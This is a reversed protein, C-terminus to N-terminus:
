LKLQNRKVTLANSQYIKILDNPRTKNQKAEEVITTHDLGKLKLIDDMFTTIEDELNITKEEKWSKYTVINKILEISREQNQLSRNLQIFSLKEDVSLNIYFNTNNKWSNFQIIKQQEDSPMKWKDLDVKNMQSFTHLLSPTFHSDLNNRIFNFFDKEKIESFGPIKSLAGIKELNIFFNNLHKESLVKEFEKWVRESTLSDFEGNSVMETMMDLTEKAISFDYRASFRAIRLIRVPDEAFHKSVHRLIQNTLDKQGGYPDIIKGTYDMAMSNITLDRRFLDDELSVNQTEVSFGGYGAGTKREKRALAYEFGTQPHLFVPFDKGVQEFGLNEMDQETYGVVVYDKDKPELGLLIDRVAGGVLFVQEKKM